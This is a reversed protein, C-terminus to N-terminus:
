HVIIYKFFLKDGYSRAGYIASYAGQYSFVESINGTALDVRIM